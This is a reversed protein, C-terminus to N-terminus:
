VAFGASKVERFFKKKEFDGLGVLLPQQTFIIQAVRLLDAQTLRDIDECVDSNTQYASKYLESRALATMRTEMSDAGLRVASKISNKVITLDDESISDRCIKDVEEKIVRLCTAVKGPETAFYINLLGTDRFAHMASYVTYALGREERVGQFLTSSMGGGLFSNLMFAALRDKHTVPLGPYAITVHAQEGERHLLYRGASFVPRQSKAKNKKRTKKLRTFEKELRKVVRTHEIDGALTVITNGACYHDSFFGVVDSRRFSKVTKRNGIIPRGLAHEPFARRLMEEHVLDEPDDASELMEQLIVTREREIEAEAFQSDTLIEALLELAFNVETSPLTIFFSTYERATMANFEGGVLDVSRAIELASRKSTGKFMMHELFHAMGSLPEPEDRSGSNVWVGIALTAFQPARESAVVVGNQLITRRYAKKEKQAQNM